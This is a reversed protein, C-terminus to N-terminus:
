DVKATQGIEAFVRKDDTMRHKITGLVEANIIEDNRAKRSLKQRLDLGCHEHFQDLRYIADETTYFTLSRTKGELGGVEALEDEDVDDMAEVAKLNFKVFPTQKRSSEGQEWGQVIWRYTGTPMPPPLKVESPAEDLISAFNPADNM